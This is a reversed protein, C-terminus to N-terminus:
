GILQIGNIFGARLSSFLKEDKDFAVDPHNM